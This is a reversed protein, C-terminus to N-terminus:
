IWSAVVEDDSMVIDCCTLDDMGIVFCVGVVNLSDFGELVVVNEWTCVVPYDFQEIESDVLFSLELELM